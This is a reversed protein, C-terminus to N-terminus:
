NDLAAKALPLIYIEYKDEISICERHCSEEVKEVSFSSPVIIEMTYDEDEIRAITKTKIGPYKQHINEIFEAVANALSSMDKTVANM